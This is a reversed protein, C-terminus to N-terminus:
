GFCKLFGEEIYSSRVYPGSVVYKFGLDLGVRKYFDFEEPPIFRQVKWHKSSPALYQGLSLFDCGVSRLNRMVDIVEQPFEGLGLIMGSKTFIDKRIKKVYKLVNVSRNYDSSPRIYPYLRPSTEINHAVIDPSASIVKDLSNFNGGFDPILVEVKCFPNKKKVLQITRSFIEAGGDPLDDRTVSTIIVYNLSLEEVMKAVRWPEEEDLPINKNQEINCFLCNRTCRTGLILFTLHKKSFCESINPCRSEECVTHVNYKRLLRKFEIYKSNLNIKKNLWPPKFLSVSKM